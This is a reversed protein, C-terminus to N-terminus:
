KAVLESLRKLQHDLEHLSLPFQPLIFFGEDNMVSSPHAGHAVRLRQKTPVKHHNEHWM